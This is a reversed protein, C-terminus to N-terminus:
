VRVERKFPCLRRNVADQGGVMGLMFSDFDRLADGIPEFGAEVDESANLGIAAPLPHAIMNPRADANRLRPVPRHSETQRVFDAVLPSREVGVSPSPFDTWNDVLFDPAPIQGEVGRQVPRKMAGAHVLTKDERGIELETVVECSSDGAPKLVVTRVSRDRIETREVILLLLENRGNVEIQPWLPLEVESHADTRSSGGVM